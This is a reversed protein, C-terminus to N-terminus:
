IEGDRGIFMPSEAIASPEMKKVPQLNTATNRKDDKKGEFSEIIM